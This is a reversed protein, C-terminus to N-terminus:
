KCNLENHSFNALIRYRCFKNKSNKCLKTTFLKFSFSLILGLAVNQVEMAFYYSPHSEAESVKRVRHIAHYISLSLVVSAQACGLVAFLLFFTFSCHNKHGVCNNIWPCHHDMKMVCSGGTGVHSLSSHYQVPHNYYKFM